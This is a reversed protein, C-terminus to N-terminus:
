PSLERLMFALAAAFFIHDLAIDIDDYDADSDHDLLCCAYHVELACADCNPINTPDINDIYHSHNMNM